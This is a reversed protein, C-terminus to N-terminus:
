KTWLLYAHASGEFATVPYSSTQAALTLFVGQHPDGAHYVYLDGLTYPGNIGHMGIREGSFSLSITQETGGSMAVANSAWEFEYGSTDLLRGIAQVIGTNDPTVGIDVVLADYLEDGDTDQGYDQYNGTVTLLVDFDTAQYAQTLHLQSMADLAGNPGVLTVRGVQYPGDVGHQRIASGFFKLTLTIPGPAAVDFSTKKTDIMVGQQDALEAKVHYMGSYGAQIQFTVQLYDFDGDGDSDLGQDTASNSIIYASPAQFQAHTYPATTHAEVMFDVIQKSPNEVEVRQLVYPGDQQSNFIGQGLVDLDVMQQGPMLSVTTYPVQITDSPGDLTGTLTYTGAQRVDVEAQIRLVDYRGDGDTDVVTDAFVGTLIVSPPEFASFQYATTTYTDAVFETNFWSEQDLLIEIAYPGNTRHRYIDQGAFHLTLWHTGVELSATAGAHVWAEGYALTGAVRIKGATSVNVQVAVSLSEYFGNNDSDIGAESYQGTLEAWGADPPEYYGALIVDTTKAVLLASQKGPNAWDIAADATVDEVQRARYEWDGYWPQNAPIGAGNYHNPFPDLENPLHDLDYDHEQPPFGDPNGAYTTRTYLIDARHQLEHTTVCYFCDIGTKGYRPEPGFGADNGIVVNLVPYTSPDVGGWGVDAKYFVNGNLGLAHKWYEFWNPIGDTNDDGIKPFYVHYAHTASVEASMGVATNHYGVTLTIDKEGYTNVTPGLGKQPQYIYQCGEASIEETGPLLDGEWKCAELEIEASPIVIEAKLMVPSGTEPQEDVTGVGIATIAEIVPAYLNVAIDTVHGWTWSLACPDNPDTEWGLNARLWTPVSTAGVPPSFQGVATMTGQYNISQYGTLALDMVQESSDWVQDGNWDIWVNVYEPSNDYSPCPLGSICSEPNAIFIDAILQYTGSQHQTLAINQIYEYATSGGSSSCYGPAAAYEFLADDQRAPRTRSSADARSAVIAEIFFIGILVLVSMRKILFQHM